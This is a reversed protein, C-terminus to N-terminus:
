LTPKENKVEPERLPLGTQQSDFDLLTKAEASDMNLSTAIGYKQEDTLSAVLIKILKDKM